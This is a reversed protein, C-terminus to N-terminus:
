SVGASVVIVAPFNVQEGDFYRRLAALVEGVVEDRQEASLGDTLARLTPQLERCGEWAQEVSGPWAWRITRREEWVERL